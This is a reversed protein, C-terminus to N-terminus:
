RRDPVVATKAVLDGLRANRENAIIAVFGVLYFLPLFDVIRMLTRKFIRGTGARGGALDSVHLSLMAKGLTREILAELAFYYLLVALVYLGFDWDELAIRKQPGETDWTGIEHAFLLFLGIMLLLDILAAATRRGLGAPEVSPVAASSSQDATM